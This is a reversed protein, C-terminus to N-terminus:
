LLPAILPLEFTKQKELSSIIRSWPTMRIEYDFGSEELVAKVLEAAYGKVVGGNKRVATYSLPYLQETLVTIKEDSASATFPSLLWILFFYHKM